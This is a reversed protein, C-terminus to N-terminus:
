SFCIINPYGAEAVIPITQEFYQTIKDHNEVRNLGSEIGGPVGSVMACILGHKKLTPFDDVKLLEVSQLGMEKGAKCLDELPVKDYCWRCVSHNIRGKLGAGAAADDAAKLRGALSAAAVAAASGTTIRALATRRTMSTKM